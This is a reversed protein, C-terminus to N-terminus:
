RVTTLDGRLDHLQKIALTIADGDGAEIVDAVVVRLQDPLATPGLWPVAHSAGAIRQIIGHLADGQDGWRAVTWHSVQNVILGTLKLLEGAQVSDNLPAAM